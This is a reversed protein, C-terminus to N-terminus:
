MPLEKTERHMKMQFRERLLAQLMEPIQKPDSGAPLKATIDWRDSAM